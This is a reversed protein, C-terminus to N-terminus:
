SNEEGKSVAHMSLNFNKSFKKMIRIYTFDSDFQSDQTLLMVIKQGAPGNAFHKFMNIYFEAEEDITENKDRSKLANVLIKIEELIEPNDFCLVIYSFSKSADFCNNSLKQLKYDTFFRFSFDFIYNRM